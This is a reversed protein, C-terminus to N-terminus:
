MRRCRILAHGEGLLEMINIYYIYIYPCMLISVDSKSFPMKKQKANLLIKESLLIKSIQKRYIKEEITGKTILRYVTM